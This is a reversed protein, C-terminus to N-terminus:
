YDIMTIWDKSISRGTLPSIIDRGQYFCVKPGNSHLVYGNIHSIASVPNRSPDKCRKKLRWGPVGDKEGVTEVVEFVYV